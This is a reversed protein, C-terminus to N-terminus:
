AGKAHGNTHRPLNDCRDVVDVWSKVLHGMEMCERETAELCTRLDIAREEAAALFAARVAANRITGGSIDYLHALLDPDIDGDLRAGEPFMRSWLRAREAVTPKEFRVRFTLRRRFASDIADEHNSTLVSIGSFQEMRQLLFNVELNAYRDNASSVETRKGFLSDAEDFLIIASSRQAEDFIRALNKETEGVWKSVVTALDVRFLEMDLERAIVSACMTKGTGPPGAFLASIGQSLSHRAGFGWDDYVRAAHRVYAIMERLTEEVDPAVVLDDWCHNNTMRVAVSKLDHRLQRGCAETLLSPSIASEDSAHQLSRAAAQIRAPPLAFRRAVAELDVDGALAAGGLATQLLLARQSPTPFPVDVRLTGPALQELLPEREEATLLVVGDLERLFPAM